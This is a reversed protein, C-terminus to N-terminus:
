VSRKLENEILQLSKIADTGNRLDISVGSLLFLPEVTGNFKSTEVHDEGFLYPIDLKYRVGLFSFNGDFIGVNFHNAKVVYVGDKICDVLKIM